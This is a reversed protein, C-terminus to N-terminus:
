ASQKVEIEKAYYGTGDYAPTLYMIKVLDGTGIDVFAPDGTFGDIEIRTQEDAWYWDDGIRLRMGDGDIEDVNGEIKAHDFKVLVKMAYYGVDETLFTRYKTKVWVGIQIDDFSWCMDDDDDYDDEDCYSTQEDVWFWMDGVRLRMNDGDVEEVYGEAWAFEHNPKIVV